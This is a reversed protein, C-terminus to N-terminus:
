NKVLSMRLHLQNPIKALVPPQRAPCSSLRVRHLFICGGSFYVWQCPRASLTPLCITQSSSSLLLCRKPTELFTFLFSSCASQVFGWGLSFGRVKWSCTLVICPRSLIVDPLAKRRSMRLFNVGKEKGKEASTIFLKLKWSVSTPAAIQM